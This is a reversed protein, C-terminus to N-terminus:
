KCAETGYLTQYLTASDAYTFTSNAKKISDYDINCNMVDDIIIHQLVDKYWQHLVPESLLNENILGNMYGSADLWADESLSVWSYPQNHQLCANFEHANLPEGNRTFYRNNDIDVLFWKKTEPHLVELMVHANFFQTKNTSTFCQVKRSRVNIRKLLEQAFASARSCTVVVKHQCAKKYWTRFPLKNDRIGHIVIWSTASLISFLDNQCVIVQRSYHSPRMVRYLGERDFRYTNGEITYIGPVVLLQTDSLVQAHASESAPLSHIPTISDYMFHYAYVSTNPLPEGSRGLREKIINKYASTNARYQWWHIVLSAGLVLLLVFLFAPYVYKKM